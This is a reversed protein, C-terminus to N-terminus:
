GSVTFYATETIRSLFYSIDELNLKFSIQDYSAYISM